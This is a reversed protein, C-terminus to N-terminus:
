FVWFSITVDTDVQLVMQKKDSRTTWVNANASMKIPIYGNINRVLNHNVFNDQGAKLTVTVVEGNLILNGRIQNLIANTQDQIRNLNVDDTRLTAIKNIRSALLESYVLTTLSRKATVDTVTEPRYADRVASNATIKMEMDAREAILAQPDSEEKNLYQIAADLHIYREWGQIMDFTDDDAELTPLTPYYWLKSTLSRVPLTQYSHRDSFMFRRMPYMQHGSLIEDVAKIRYFDVPLPYADQNVTVNIIESKINWNESTTIILDYLKRYSENIIRNEETSSIFSSNVMDARERAALKTEGFTYTAV